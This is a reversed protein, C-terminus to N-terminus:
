TPTALQHLIFCADPQRPHIPPSSRDSLRLRPPSCLQLADAAWLRQRVRPAGGRHGDPGACCFSCTRLSRVRTRLKADGLEAQHQAAARQQAQLATGREAARVAAAQAEAQAAAVAAHREALQQELTRQREAAVADREQQKDLSATAQVTDVRRKRTSGREASRQSHHVDLWM